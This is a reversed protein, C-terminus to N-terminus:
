LRRYPRRRERRTKRLLQLFPRNGRFGDRVGTWYLVNWLASLSLYSIRDLRGSYTTLGAWAFFGTLTRGLEPPLIGLRVAFRNLPNGDTISAM